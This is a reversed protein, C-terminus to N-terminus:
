FSDEDDDCVPMAKTFLRFCIPDFGKHVIGKDDKPIGKYMQNISTEKLDALSYSDFYYANLLPNWIGCRVELEGSRLKDLKESKWKRINALKVAAKDYIGDWISLETTVLVHIDLQRTDHDANSVRVNIQTVDQQRPPDVPENVVVRIRTTV